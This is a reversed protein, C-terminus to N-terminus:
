DVDEDVADIEGLLDGREKGLVEDLRSSLVALQRAEDVDRALADCQGAGGGGETDEDSPSVM